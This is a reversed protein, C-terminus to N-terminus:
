VLDELSQRLRPWLDAVSEAPDFAVRYCTAARQLDEIPVEDPDPGNLLTEFVRVTLAALEGDTLNSLPMQSYGAELKALRTRLTM